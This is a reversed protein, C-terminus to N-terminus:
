VLFVSVQELKLRQKKVEAEEGKFLPNSHSKFITGNITQLSNFAEELEARYNRRQHKRSRQKIEEYQDLAGSLQLLAALIDGFFVQIDDVECLTNSWETIRGQLQDINEVGGSFLTNSRSSM